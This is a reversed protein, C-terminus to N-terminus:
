WFKSIKSDEDDPKAYGNEDTWYGQSARQEITSNVYDPADDATFYGPFAHKIMDYGYITCSKDQFHRNIERVVLPRDILHAFTLGVRDALQALVGDGLATVRIVNIERSYLLLLHQAVTRINTERYLWNFNITRPITQGLRAQESLNNEVLRYKYDDLTTLWDYACNILNAYLDEPDSEIQFTDPLIATEDLAWDTALSPKRSKATYMGNLIFLDFGCNIALEEILTQSSLEENICRRCFFGSLEIALAALSDLDIREEPVHEYNKLIDLLIDTPTRLYSV